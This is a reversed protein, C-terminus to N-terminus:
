SPLRFIWKLFAYRRRLAYRRLLVRQYRNIVKHYREHMYPDGGARERLSLLRDTVLPKRRM